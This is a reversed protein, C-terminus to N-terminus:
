GRSVEPLEIHHLDHESVNDYGYLGYKLGILVRSPNGKWTKVSTVKWRRPTGDKNFAGVQHVVQGQRLGKAQELTM